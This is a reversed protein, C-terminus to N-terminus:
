TASLTCTTAMVVALFPLTTSTICGLPSFMSAARIVTATAPRARETNMGTRTTSSSRAAKHLWMEIEHLVACVMGVPLIHVFAFVIAVAVHGAITNSVCPVTMPVATSAVEYISTVTLKRAWNMTISRSVVTVAVQFVVVAVVGLVTFVVIDVRVGAPIAVFRALSIINCTSTVPLARLTAIAIVIAINATIDVFLAIAMAVNACTTVTTATVAAGLVLQVCNTVNTAVAIVMVVDITTAFKRAKAVSIVTAVTNAFAVVHPM